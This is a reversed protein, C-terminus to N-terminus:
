TSYLAQFVNHGRVAFFGIIRVEPTTRRRGMLGEVVKLAGIRITFPLGTMNAMLDVVSSLYHAHRDYTRFDEGASKVQLCSTPAWLRGHPVEIWHQSIHM